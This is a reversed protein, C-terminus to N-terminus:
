FCMGVVVSHRYFVIVILKGSKKFIEEINQWINCFRYRLVKIIRDIRMLSIKKPPFSQIQFFTIFLKASESLFLILRQVIPKIM